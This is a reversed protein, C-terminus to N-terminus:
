VFIFNCQHNKMVVSPLYTNNVTFTDICPQSLSKQISRLLIQRKTYTCVAKSIDLGKKEHTIYTTGVTVPAFLAGSWDMGEEWPKPVRSYKPELDQKSSSELSIYNHIADKM